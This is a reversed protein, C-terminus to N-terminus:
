GGKAASVSPVTLPQGHPDPARAAGEATVLRPERPGYDIPEVVPNQGRAGAGLEVAVLIAFILYLFPEELLRGESQSQFLIEVLAAACWATMLRSYRDTWLVFATRCTVGVRIAFLIVIGVGVIGLEALISVISTHSLTTQAWDPITWLYSIILAHQYNGSGVGVLPNDKFMEWGGKILFERQGLLQVGSTLSKVRGANAGGQMFLLTLGFALAGFAVATLRFKTYGRIPSLLVVLFSALLMGLWGSRSATTIIGVGSLVLMPIAVYVTLRRPGTVMILGASLAISIALFRALNNPDAFFANSRYSYDDSQVLITRWQFVGLVRQAIAVVSLLTAAILFAAVIRELDKRDEILSPAAFVFAVYMPMILVGNTPRMSDSWAVGVLVVFTLVALPLMLESEPFLKRPNHRARILAFGITALMAAKGPNLLTRIIGGAGSEGFRSLEQTSVYEFPLGLVVCPILLKPEKLIIVAGLLVMQLLLILEYERV